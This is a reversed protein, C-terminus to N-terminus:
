PPPAPAVIKCCKTSNGCSGSCTEGYESQTWLHPYPGAHATRPAAAHAVALVIAVLSTMLLYM